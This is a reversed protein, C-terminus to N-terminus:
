LITGWCKNCIREETGEKCGDEDVIVDLVMARGELRGYRDLLPPSDFPKGCVFCNYYCSDLLWDTRSGIKNM